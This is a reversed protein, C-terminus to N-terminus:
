FLLLLGGVIFPAVAVLTFAAGSNIKMSLHTLLTIYLLIGAVSLLVIGMEDPTMGSTLTM